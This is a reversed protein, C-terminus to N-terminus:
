MGRLREPRVRPSIRRGLGLRRLRQEGGHQVLLAQLRDLTREDFAHQALLLAAEAIWVAVVDRTRCARGSGQPQRKPAM